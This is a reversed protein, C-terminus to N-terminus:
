LWCEWGNGTQLDYWDVVPKLRDNLSPAFACFGGAIGNGGFRVALVPTIQEALLPDNLNKWRRGEVPNGLQHGPANSIMESSPIERFVPLPVSKM